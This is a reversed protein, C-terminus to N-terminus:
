ARFSINEDQPFGPSLRWNEVIGLSGVNEHVSQTGAEVLQILENIGQGSELYASWKKRLPQHTDPTQSMEKSLTCSNVPGQYM